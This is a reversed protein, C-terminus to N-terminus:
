FTQSLLFSLERQQEDDIAAILIGDTAMLSKSLLLRDNLLSMWSSAKYGNKYDIASTDTNYPPDIYVCQVHERYRAQILSLAQFNEGCILVGDTQEDWM